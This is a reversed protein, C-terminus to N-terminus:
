GSWPADPLGEDLPGGPRCDPSLYDESLHPYVERWYTQALRLAQDPDAGLLEATQADRQMAECEAVGESTEGAMHRAEHSLIHVAIVQDRTPATKDSGLYASLDGCQARKILTAHEPVGDPGYRVWGLEAGADVFEQGATQCHVQVPAGVLESAAVALRQELRHHRVVPVLLGAGVLVLTVVSVAPFRIQRGLGDRSHLLWRGALLVAGGLLGIATWTLM